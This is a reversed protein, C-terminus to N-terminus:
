IFLFFFGLAILPISILKHLIDRITLNEGFDHALVSGFVVSIILLFLYQLGGLAQVLAVDGFEIAKLLIISALGALLKNGLVFLGDRRKAEKTRTVIKEWYEPILLMSLAVAVIALRSWLFASDFNSINILAKFAIYHIGYMLSAHTVSLMVRWSFRFRSVLITGISLLGFGLFFDTPLKSNLFFHSFILTFFATLGGIVPVADSADAEKLAQFFSLLATFFTYGTLMALSFMILDPLMVNQFSPITLGPVPVPVWSFCFIVVSGASLVSIWFTYTLPRLAVKGSTVIYKDVLAVIANLFQGVIALLLWLSM